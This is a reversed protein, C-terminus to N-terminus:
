IEVDRPYFENEWGRRENIFLHLLCLVQTKRILLKYIFRISHYEVDSQLQTVITQRIIPDNM